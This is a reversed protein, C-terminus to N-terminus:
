LTYSYYDLILDMAEDPTMDPLETETIKFHKRHRARIENTDAIIATLRAQDKDTLTYNVM